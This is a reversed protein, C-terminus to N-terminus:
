ITFNLSLNNCYMSCHEDSEGYEPGPMGLQRARNGSMTCKLVYMLAGYLPFGQYLVNRSTSLSVEKNQSKWTYLIRFCIAM